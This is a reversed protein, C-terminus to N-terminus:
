TRAITFNLYCAHGPVHVLDDNTVCFGLDTKVHVVTSGYNNGTGDLTLCSNITITYKDAHPLPVMSSYCVGSHSGIGFVVIVQLFFTQDQVDLYQKTVGRDRSSYPGTLDVGLRNNGDSIHDHLVAHQWIQNIDSSNVVGNGDVDMRALYGTGTLIYNLVLEQDTEDVVGDENVDYISTVLVGADSVYMWKRGGIWLEFPSTPSMVVKVAKSNVTGNQVLEPTDLDFYTKGDTSQIKGTTINGGNIITQGSTQLELNSTMDEPAPVWDKGAKNGRELKIWDVTSSSTGSSPTQFCSIYNFGEALGRGDAYGMTVTKQAIGNSDLNASTFYCLSKYGYSSFVCMSTRDAGLTFKITITITEGAQPPDDGFYYNKMGYISNTVSVGSVKLLNRTGVIIADTAIKDATISGAAIRDAALTGVNINSANVLGTKIYGGEIVTTGLKAVEIQSLAIVWDSATYVGALRQTVCKKLDGINNTTSTIWLDGVLYPVTPQALFTTRKSNATEQATDAADQATYGILKAKAAIANLLDQRADYYTKFTTRFTSGVIDSTTTLSTLLPTIYTDLASYANDYATKETTIIYATASSDIKTKEGGIIDWECKVSQKEVATLKSDSALDTLLSNAMVANTVATNATTQALNATTDDTYKSALTWDGAVYAGTARATSCLKLDGASGAAWLDGVDYPTTPTAVFVQRKHDATDQAAAANALATTIDTDTIKQWSYTTSVLQFRYSYGTATDYFLDGLHQNKTETTTWTNAPENTLLPVYAFFWTSISGDIQSQLGTAIGNVFSQAAAYAADAKAQAGAPTEKTSPDYGTAFTSGSGISIREASVTGANLWDANIGIATLVKLIANGTATYGYQWVPLGSNWGSDTWAFGSGTMTYIIDSEELVTLNHIYQTKAGTAPDTIVTTYFGISNTIIQNLDLTALELATTQRGAEVQAVRQLIRQQRATFPAATAYGNVAETEGVAKIKSNGSLQYEHSTIISVLDNGDPDVLRTIVDGPWLQPYGKIEFNYPRYAFGGIVAYIDDLVVQFNSQLLGNDEIVLAYDSTGAIYDTGAITTSVGSITIDSEATEYSYRDASTIELDTADQEGGYWSLRLQGNYDMWANTAALAAVWAVVQHYTLDDDAPRTAVSYSSHLFVQTYLTVNCKACADQLIQLLTAPYALTTTYSKNFKAMNDLARIQLTDLRKPPEDVVFIGARLTEDNIIFDVTLVAGEFRYANFRRDNNDLDFTLESTEANGIEITQGSVSNRDLYMSGEVIDADTLIRNGDLGSCGITVGVKGGKQLWSKAATSINQM